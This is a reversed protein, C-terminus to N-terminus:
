EWDWFKLSSFQFYHVIVASFNNNWKLRWIQRTFKVLIEMPGFNKVFRHFLLIANKFIHLTSNWEYPRNCVIIGKKEPKANECYNKKSIKTSFHHSFTFVLFGLQKVIIFIICFVFVPTTHLLGLLKELSLKWNM